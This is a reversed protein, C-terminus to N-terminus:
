IIPAPFGYWYETVPPRELRADGTVDMAVLPADLHRAANAGTETEHDHPMWEAPASHAVRQPIFGWHGKFLSEGLEWARPLCAPWTTGQWKPWPCLWCNKFHTWNKSKKKRRKTPVQASGDRQDAAYHDVNPRVTKILGPVILESEAPETWQAVGGPLYPPDPAEASM